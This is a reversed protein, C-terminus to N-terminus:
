SEQDQAAQCDAETLRYLSNGVIKKALSKAATAHISLEAETKLNPFDTLKVMGISLSLLPFFRPNGHRDQADIGRAALHKDNYRSSHLQIFQEHIKKCREESHGNEFVVIFDDGGVHGVFHTEGASADILIKATELIVKDGKEYGYIDNYPKFNDLDVYCVTCNREQEIATKIYENIPVNGPLGSLPNAYRASTIQLETIERLLDMINGVGRYQEADTIVFMSHSDNNHNNTILTSLTRLPMNIDIITPASSLFDSIPKRGHLDRGYRSAFITMFENRSVIGLPINTNAIVPLSSLGVNKQFRESVQMATDHEYVPTLPTLLSGVAPESRNKFLIIDKNRQQFLAPNLEKLPHLTPRAFYYGQGFDINLEHNALYEERVEIGEAIVKCGISHAIDLMSKVFQFKTRDEHINQIFHRDLKVFDPKLESWTRLGAYGAGLDDLAITFGMSRYHETADRMLRYDDIPYQETLEIVVRNPSLNAEKLFNLTLGHQYDDQLLVAPITNLFLKAPLNLRGFKQIALDRCLLDLEALRGHRSAADFLNIPSHLPSNSPGRSLAEYGYITNNKLSVIPQFVTSIAGTELIEDLSQGQKLEENTM